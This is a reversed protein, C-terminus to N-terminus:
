HTFDVDEKCGLCFFTAVGPGVRAQAHEPGHLLVTLTLILSCPVPTLTVSLPSWKLSDNVLQTINSLTPYPKGERSTLITLYGVLLKSKSGSTEKLELNRSDINGAM